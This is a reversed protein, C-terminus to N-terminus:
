FSHFVCVHLDGSPLIASVTKTQMQSLQYSQNHQHHQNNNNESNQYSADKIYPSCLDVRSSSLNNFSGRAVKWVMSSSIILAIFWFLSTSAVIIAVASVTCDVSDM